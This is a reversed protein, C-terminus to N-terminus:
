LEITLVRSTKVKAGWRHKQAQWCRLSRRRHKDAQSWANNRQRSRKLARHSQAETPVNAVHTPFIMIVCLLFTARFLASRPWPVSALHHTAGPGRHKDAQHQPCKALSGIGCFTSLFTQTRSTTAQPHKPCELDPGQAERVSRRKRRKQDPWRKQVGM